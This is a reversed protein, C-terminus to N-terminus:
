EGGGLVEEAMCCPCKSGCLDVCHGSCGWVSIKQLVDRLRVIEGDRAAVDFHLSQIQRGFEDAQETLRAQLRKNEARLDIIIKVAVSENKELQTIYRQQGLRAESQKDREARLTSLEQQYALCQTTAAASNEAHDKAMSQWEALEAEMDKLRQELAANHAVLSDYDLATQHPTGHGTTGENGVM